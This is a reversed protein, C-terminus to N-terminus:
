GKGRECNRKRDKGGQGRCTDVAASIVDAGAGGILVDAGLGGSGWFSRRKPPLGPAGGSAPLCLAAVLKGLSSKGLTARVKPCIPPV